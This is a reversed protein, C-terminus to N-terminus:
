DFGGGVETGVEDNVRLDPTWPIVVACDAKPHCEM